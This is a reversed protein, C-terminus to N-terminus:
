RRRTTRKKKNLSRTKRKGGIPGYARVLPLRDTRLKDQARGNAFREARERARANAFGRRPTGAALQAAYETSYVTDIDIDNIDNLGGIDVGRDMCMANATRYQNAPAPTTLGAVRFGADFYDQLVGVVVKSFQIAMTSVNGIQNQMGIRYETRAPVELVEPVEPKEPETETAPVREIRPSGPVRPIYIEQIFYRRYSQGFRTRHTRGLAMDDKVHMFGLPTYRNVPRGDLPEVTTFITFHAVKASYYRYGPGRFNPVRRELILNFFHQDNERIPPRIAQVTRSQTGNYEVYLAYEDNNSINRNIAYGGYGAYGRDNIDQNVWQRADCFMQRNAANALYLRNTMERALDPGHGAFTSWYPGLLRVGKLRDTAQYNIAQMQSLNYQRIRDTNAATPQPM